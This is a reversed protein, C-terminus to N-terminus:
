PEQNTNNQELRLDWPRQIGGPKEWVGLGQERATTEAAAYPLDDCRGLYGNHVFLMGTRLLQPAVDFGSRRVVGVIRDFVDRARLEVTIATGVPLEAALAAKAQQAWPQQSQEPSDVCALRVRRDLGGLRVLVVHGDQVSLVRGTQLPVAALVSLSLSLLHSIVPGSM